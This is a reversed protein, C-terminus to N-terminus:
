GLMDHMSPSGARPRDQRVQVLRQKVRGEAASPMPRGARPVLRHAQTAANRMQRRTRVYLVGWGIGLIFAFVAAFTMAPLMWGHLAMVGPAIPLGRGEYLSAAAPLPIAAALSAAAIRIPMQRSLQKM